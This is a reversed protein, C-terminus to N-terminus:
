TDDSLSMRRRSWIGQWSFCMKDFVSLRVDWSKQDLRQHCYTVHFFLCMPSVTAVCALCITNTNRGPLALLHTFRFTVTVIQGHHRRIQSIYVNLFFTVVFVLFM